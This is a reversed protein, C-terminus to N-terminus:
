GKVDEVKAQLESAKETNAGEMAGADVTKPAKDLSAWRIRAEADLLMGPWESGAVSALHERFANSFTAAQEEASRSSFISVLTVAHNLIASATSEDKASSTNPTRGKLNPMYLAKDKQFMRTPVVWHKGMHKKIGYFNNWYSENM